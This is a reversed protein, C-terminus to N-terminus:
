TSRRALPMTGVTSRTSSCMRALVARLSVNVVAVHKRVDALVGDFGPVKAMVDPPAERQFRELEAEALPYHALYQHVRGRNYFNSPQPSLEYSADYLRLAEDFHKADFAADAQRKLDAADSERKLEPSPAKPRDALAMGPALMLALVLAWRGM